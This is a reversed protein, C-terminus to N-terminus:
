QNVLGQENKLNLISDTSHHVAAVSCIREILQSAVYAPSDPYFRKSITKLSESTLSYPPYQRGVGLISLGLDSFTNKATM